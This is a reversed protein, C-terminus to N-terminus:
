HSSHPVAVGREALRRTLTAATVLMWLLFAEITVRELLGGITWGAGAGVAASLGSAFVIGLCVFSFFSMDEGNPAKRWARAAFWIAGMSGLSELGALGIHVAGTTTMPSGFPDQPFSAMLVGFVAVAFLLAFSKVWDTHHRLLRLGTAAFALALGNYVVLLLAVAETGQRGSQNLESIFDTMHSYGPVLTAGWIVVAAYLIPAAIGCALGALAVARPFPATAGSDRGAIDNM